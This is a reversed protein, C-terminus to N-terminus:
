SGDWIQRAYVFTAAFARNSIIDITTGAFIFLTINEVSLGRAMAVLSHALEHLLVSLFLLLAAIIGTIWYTALSWGPFSQPFFGQALSWAILLFALLWTYHVGIKIGAIRGLHLSSKMAYREKDAM